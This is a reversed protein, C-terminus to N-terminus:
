MSENDSSGDDDFCFRNTYAALSLHESDRVNVSIDDSRDININQIIKSASHSLSRKGEIRSNNSCTSSREDNNDQVEKKFERERIFKAEVACNEISYRALENISKPQRVRVKILDNELLGEERCRKLM